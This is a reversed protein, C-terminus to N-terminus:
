SEVKGIEVTISKMVPRRRKVTVVELAEERTAPQEKADEIDEHADRLSVEKGTLDNFYKLGHETEKVSHNEKLKKKFIANKKFNGTVEDLSYGEKVRYVKEGVKRFKSVRYTELQGDEKLRYREETEPVNVTITKQIGKCHDHIPITMTHHEEHIHHVLLVIIDGSAFPQECIPCSTEEFCLDGQTIYTARVTNWKYDNNGIYGSNSFYPLFSNWYRGVFNFMSSATMDIEYGYVELLDGSSQLYLGKNNETTIHLKDSYAAIEGYKVGNEYWFLHGQNSNAWTELVKQGGCMVVFGNPPVLAVYTDSDEEGTRIISSYIKGDTIKAGYEGGGLNGILVKQNNSADFVRIGQNSEPAILDVKGNKVFHGIRM